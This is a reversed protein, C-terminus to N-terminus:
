DYTNECEVCRSSQHSIPVLGLKCTRCYVYGHKEPDGDIQAVLKDYKNSIDQWIEGITEQKTM